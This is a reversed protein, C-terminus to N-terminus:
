CSLQENKIHPIQQPHKLYWDIIREMIMDYADDQLYPSREQCIKNLNETIKQTTQKEFIHSDVLHLKLFQILLGHCNKNFNVNGNRHSEDRLKIIARLLEGQVTDAQGRNPNRYKLYYFLHYTEPISGV